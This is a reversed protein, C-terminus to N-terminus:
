ACCRPSSARGNPRRSTSWSTSVRRPRSPRTPSRCDSQSSSSTPRSPRRQRRARAHVPPLERAPRPPRGRRRTPRARRRPRRRHSSAGLYGPRQDRPRGDARAAAADTSTKGRRCVSADARSPPRPPEDDQGPVPALVGEGAQCRQGRQAVAVGRDHADVVPRGVARHLGDAGRMGLDVDDLVAAVQAEGAAVVRAQAVGELVARLPRHQDVVVRDSAGSATSRRRARRRRAGRPRCARRCPRRRRAARDSRTRRGASRAAAEAVRPARAAVPAAVARAIPARVAGVAGRAGEHGDRPPQDVGDAQEVVLQEGVDLVDVPATARPRGAELDPEHGVRQGPM